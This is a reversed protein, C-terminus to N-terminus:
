LAHRAKLELYRNIVDSSLRASSTELVLAGARKLREGAVSRWRLLEAAAGRRYLEALTPPGPDEGRALRSLETDELLVVLALHRAALLRLRKALESVSADDLLQTFLLLLSRQKVRADFAGLGLEYSSECLRPQLDYTARVLRRTAQAGGSPAVFARVARDFCVGGVRDGGRAAVHAALLAANLARDFQTLGDVRATMLRGADLAFFVNQDSELQHERVTLRSRRATAKWDVARYDDDPTYDRLRAFESEGGRLPSKRVLAYQRHQRALLEYTRIAALDPYVQVSQAGGLTVQRQWLGLRSGYRVVYPGLTWAGRERPILHLAVETTSGPSAQTKLPLEPAEFTAPHDVRLELELRRRGRGRLSLRVLNPQGISFIERHAATLLPVADERWFRDLLAAALLAADLALGPWLLERRFLTALSLLSPLLFLRVLARSPHM